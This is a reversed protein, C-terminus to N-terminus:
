RFTRDLNHGRSRHSSSYDYTTVAGNADFTSVPNGYADTWKATVSANSISLASPVGNNSQLAPMPSVKRSDWKREQLLNGTSTYLYESFAGPGAGTVRTTAVQSRIAPSYFNWYANV